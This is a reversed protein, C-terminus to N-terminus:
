INGADLNILRGQARRQYLGPLFNEFCGVEEINHRFWAKLKTEGMMKPLLLGNILLRPLGKELGVVLRSSYKVGTELNKFRHLLRGLELGGKKVSLGFGDKKFYVVRAREKLRFASERQFAEQILIFDDEQLKSGKQGSAKSVAIHDFPHWLHYAPYEKDRLIVKLSIFNEFWWVIMERTVNKIISHDITLVFQGTRLKTFGTKASDVGKLTWGFDRKGPM